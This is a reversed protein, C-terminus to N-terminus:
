ATGKAKAIAARLLEAMATLAIAESDHEPLVSPSPLWLSSIRMAAEAAELLDPAAACLHANAIQEAWPLPTLEGKVFTECGSTDAIQWGDNEDAAVGTANKAGRHTFVDTINVVEWPGPTHNM